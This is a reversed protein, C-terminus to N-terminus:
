IATPRAPVPVRAGAQSPDPVPPKVAPRPVWLSLAGLLFLLTFFSGIVLLLPRAFKWLRAILIGSAAGVPLTTEPALGVLFIVLLFAGIVALFPYVTGLFMRGSKAMEQLQKIRTEDFNHGIWPWHISLQAM